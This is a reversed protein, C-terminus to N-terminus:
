AYEQFPYLLYSQMLDNSWPHLKPYKLTLNRIESSNVKFPTLGHWCPILLQRPLKWTSLWTVIVNCDDPQLIWSLINRTYNLSFSRLLRFIDQNLRGWYTCPMLGSLLHKSGSPHRYVIPVLFIEFNDQWISDPLFFTHPGVYVWPILILCFYLIPVFPKTNTQM